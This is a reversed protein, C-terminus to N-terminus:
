RRVRGQGYNQLRKRYFLGTLSDFRDEERARLKSRKATARPRFFRSHGSTCITFRRNQKAADAVAVLAVAVLAAV